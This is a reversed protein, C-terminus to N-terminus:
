DQERYGDLLFDWHLPDFYFPDNKRLLKNLSRLLRKLTRDKWWQGTMIRGRDFDILHCTESGLLINMANLDQHFVGKDHFSRITAGIRRWDKEDLPRECLISSLAASGEIEETVIDSRCTLGSIEIRMAIPRPAPLGRKEIEQLIQWERYARSNKLGLWLYSHKSLKSIFGGRFYHRLVCAHNRFNFFYTTGRGEESRTILGEKQLRDPNFLDEKLSDPIDSLDPHLFVMTSSDAMCFIPDTLM